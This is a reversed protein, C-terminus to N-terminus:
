GSTIRMTPWSSGPHSACHVLAIIEQKRTRIQRADKVRLASEQRLFDILVVGISKQVRTDIVESGIERLLVTYFRHHDLIILDGDVLTFRPHVNPM